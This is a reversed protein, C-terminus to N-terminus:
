RPEVSGGPTYSRQVFRISQSATGSWFGRESSEAGTGGDPFTTRDPQINGNNQQEDSWTQTICRSTTPHETVQEYVEMPLPWPTDIQTGLTADDYLVTPSGTAVSWCRDINFVAWFTNIREGEEVIDHAPTMNFANVTDTSGSGLLASPSTISGPPVNTLGSSRIRNMGCSLALSVAAGTHYKGELFRGTCFFYQALLVEAQLAQVRKQSVVSGFADTLSATARSILAQIQTDRNGSPTLHVAWLLVANLM